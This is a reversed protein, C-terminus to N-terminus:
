GCCAKATSTETSTSEAKPACCAASPRLDAGLSADEGYTAAEGFTFFTEWRLGSPDTVWSKDSQAYCCTAGEEDFTSQGAAKLRDSLEALDGRDDVQIGIHDVGPALGRKSVAFNVRPAELMWKAYDTKTVSPEAGFLASYFGISKALDDVSVHVHIRKM